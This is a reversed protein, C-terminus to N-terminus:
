RDLQRMGAFDNKLARISTDKTLISQRELVWPM